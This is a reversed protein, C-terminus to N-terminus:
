RSLFPREPFMTMLLGLITNKSKFWVIAVYDVTSLIRYYAANAELNSERELWGTM